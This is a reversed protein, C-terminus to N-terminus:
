SFTSSQRLRLLMLFLQAMNKGISGGHEAYSEVLARMKNEVTEYFERESTSFELVVHEVSRGPLEILSKGNDTMTKIRRLLLNKMLLQIIKLSNPHLAGRSDFQALRSKFTTYDNYPSIKM